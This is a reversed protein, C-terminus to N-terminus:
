PFTGFPVAGPGDYTSLTEWGEKGELVLAIRMLADGTLHKFENHGYTASSLRRMARLRTLNDQAEARTAWYQARNGVGNHPAEYLTVPDVRTKDSLTLYKCRKGAKVIPKGYVIAEDPDRLCNYTHTWLMDGIKLTAAV